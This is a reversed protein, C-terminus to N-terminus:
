PITRGLVYEVAYALYDPNNQQGLAKNIRAINPQIIENIVRKHFNKRDNKWIEEAKDIEEVTLFEGITVNRGAM